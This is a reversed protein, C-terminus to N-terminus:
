RRRQGPLRRAASRPSRHGARQDERETLWDPHLRGSRTLQTGCRGDVEGREMALDIDSGAKYGGIVKIKTGFLKNLMAPYVEMQSGVGISGVTFEKDLMDAWTKAPSTHWVHVHRRRPRPTGLWNFKLTDFRAGKSGWLPALPVTSNVIGIATGDQPAQPLPLQHRCGAPAPCARCSSM